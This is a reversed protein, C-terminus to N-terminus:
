TAWAPPPVSRDLWEAPVPAGFSTVLPVVGAWASSAGGTEDVPPLGVRTKASAEEISLALVEVERMAADDPQQVEAWRGPAIKNTVAELATWKEDWDTVKVAHGFVVASRYNMSHNRASRTLVLGDVITFTACLPVGRRGDRLHGAAPSGHLYVTSGIRAHITPLVVPNGERVVGVHCWMAEDVVAHVAAEDYSAREPHRRVRTRSGDTGWSTQM